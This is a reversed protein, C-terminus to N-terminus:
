YMLSARRPAKARFLLILGNIEPCHPFLLRFSFPVHSCFAIKPFLSCLFDFIKIESFLPFHRIKEPSCPFLYGGRSPGWKNPVSRILLARYIRFISVSLGSCVSYVWVLRRRAADPRPRFQKGSFWCYTLLYYFPSTRLKLCTHYPILNDSYKPCIHYGTSYRLWRM